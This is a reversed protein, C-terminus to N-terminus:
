FEFPTKRGVDALISNIQGRSALRSQPAPSDAPSPQASVRDRIALIMPGVHPGVPDQRGWTPGMYAGHVKSDPTNQTHDQVLDDIYRKRCGSIEM